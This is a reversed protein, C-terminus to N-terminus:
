HTHFVRKKRNKKGNKLAEKQALTATGLTDFVGICRFKEYRKEVLVKPDLGALENWCRKLAARIAEATEEPNQHAGGLPEKVIEDILKLDYLDKDTLKLAAAAEPAKTRDKWLIAACGEPSIVSYYANELVLVRDGVGIGLAGGSGGEGIVFVVIPVSIRAMERINFAISYAQGREEAGVGPYAGPTDVFVAIPVRFKEALKMLRLAKRYGEPHASGFNRMINEKADRGKQHGLVLFNQTEFKAFGGVLAKDDAFTRDGHFEVFDSFIMQIYDLTYPRKPHRAIQVRQWPTMHLYTDRRLHELRGELKKVESQLNLNGDVSLARLESIKKELEVIPKEFDLTTIM